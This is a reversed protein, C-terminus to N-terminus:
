ILRQLSPFRGKAAWSAPLDPLRETLTLNTLAALSGLSQWTDSTCNTPLVTIVSYGAPNYFHQWGLRQLVEQEIKAPDTATTTTNSSNVPQVTSTNFTASAPSQRHLRQVLVLMLGPSALRAM